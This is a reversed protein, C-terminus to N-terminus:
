ETDSAIDNSRDPSEAYQLHLRGPGAPPDPETPACVEVHNYQAACHLPSVKTPGVQDVKADKNLLLEVIEARGHLSAVHLATYTDSNRATILEYKNVKTEFSRKSGGGGTCEDCQCLPHCAEGEAKVAGTIPAPPYAGNLGVLAKKVFSMDNEEIAEFFTAM